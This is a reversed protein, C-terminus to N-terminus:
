DVLQALWGPWGGYSYPFTGASGSNARDHMLGATHLACGPRPLYYVTNVTLSMALTIGRFCMRLPGHPQWGELELEAV